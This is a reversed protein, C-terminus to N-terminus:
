WSQRLGDFLAPIIVIIRQFVLNPCIHFGTQILQLLRYIVFISSREFREAAFYGQPTNRNHNLGDDNQKHYPDSGVETDIGNQVRYLADLLVTGDRLDAGIFEPIQGAGIVLHVFYILATQFTQIEFCRVIFQSASIITGSIIQKKGANIQFAGIHQEKVDVVKFADIISVSMFNSVLDQDLQYLNQFVVESRVIIDTPDSAIFKNHEHNM